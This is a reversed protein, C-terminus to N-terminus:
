SWSWKWLNNELRRDRGTRRNPKTDFRIAQRRDEGSRRDVGARKEPLFVHRCHCLRIDCDPVPLPPPDSASFAHQQLKEIARCYVGSAPVEVKVCWFNASQPSVASDDLVKKLKRFRFM